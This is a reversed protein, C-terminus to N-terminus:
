VAGALRSQADVLGAGVRKLDFTKYWCYYYPSAALLFVTCCFKYKFLLLVSMFM